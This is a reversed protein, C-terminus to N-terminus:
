VAGLHTRPHRRLWARLRSAIRALGDHSPPDALMRASSRAARAPRMG